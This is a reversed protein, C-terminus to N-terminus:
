PQGLPNRGGTLEESFAMQDLSSPELLRGDAQVDVQVGDHQDSTMAAVCAAARLDDFNNGGEKRFQLFDKIAVKADTRSPTEQARKVKIAGVAARFSEDLEREPSGAGSGFIVADKLIAGCM